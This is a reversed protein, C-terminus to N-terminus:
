VIRRPIVGVRYKIVDLIAELKTKRSDYLVVDLKLNYKEAATRASQVNELKDDIFLVATNELKTGDNTLMAEYAQKFYAPDIKSYGPERTGPKACYFGDTKFPKKGVRKLEENIANLKRNYSGEDNDTWVYIPTGFNDQMYQYIEILAVNPKFYLEVQALQKKKEESIFPVDKFIYNVYAEAGIVPKGEIDKLNTDNAADVKKRFETSTAYLWLGRAADKFGLISMAKKFQGVKSPITLVKDLDSGIAGIPLKVRAAQAFGMCLGIALIGYNINM